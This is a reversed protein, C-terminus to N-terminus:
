KQPPPAPPPGGDIHVPPWVLPAPPPGPPPGGTPTPPDIKDALWRLITALAERM